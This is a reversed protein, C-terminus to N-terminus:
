KKKMALNGTISFLMQLSVAMLQIQIRLLSLLLFDKRLEMLIDKGSAMMDANTKVITDDIDLVLLKM